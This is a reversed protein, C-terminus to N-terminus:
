IEIGLYLDEISVKLVKAFGIVEFDAIFKVGNEIKSIDSRNIQFDLVQLRACLDEQSINAQKRISRINPGIINIKDKYRNIKMM